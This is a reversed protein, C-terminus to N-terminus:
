SHYFYYSGLLDEARYKEALQFLYRKLAKVSGGDSNVKALLGAFVKKESEGTQDQVHGWVRSAAKIAHEPVVPMRLVAEIRRYMELAPYSTCEHLLQRIEQETQPSHEAVSHRYRAWDSELADMGRDSVCHICKLASINKDKVELMIDLDNGEIRRCFGVFVDVELTDSHAGARKHPNQQSYHIKQRGDRRKWTAGCLRIWAEDTMGQGSPHVAHHLTDFVVPIEGESADLVDRITFLSDDNELVLRRRVSPDLDRYRSLFRSIAQRKEGYAGGLHLVLKHEPSLGLADLVRAHYRLDEAARAAVSGDPSNLVTYQGPHMSVRMGVRGIKGAIDTLQRRYITEWPLKSSLSSGFPILDSSIRFLGIGHFANYEITKELCSLNHGILELLREENANKLTCRRLDSGQVAIALCAYGINM